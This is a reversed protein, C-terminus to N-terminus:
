FGLTLDQANSLAFPQFGGFHVAQTSCTFGVFISRKPIALDYTALPGPRPTLLMLEGYPDTFDVLIVQGGGWTLSLPATFGVLWALNHGTTGGLDITATYTGGVVPLTVADLSAPNTGANRFATAALPYCSDYHYGMDAIGSDQHCDTRTTGVITETAPDGTDVCPNSVGAQPPDQRLHFNVGVHDLFLPNANIMGAGWHLTGGPEVFVAASGGELDSYSMDLTSPLATTGLWVEYGTGAPNDWLICNKISVVAGDLHLAGGNSGANNKAITNQYLTVQGTCAVGGGLGAHNQVILNNSLEVVGTSALLIGGGFGSAYNVVLENEFIGPSAGQWWIGAGDQAGNSLISNQYITVTDANGWIGGGDEDAENWTFTNDVITPSSDVLCMGGGDHTTTNAYFTNGRVLPSSTDCFLGGGLGRTGDAHNNKIENGTITPSSGLCFIGGGCTDSGHLTGVGGTITFGALVSGAGEGGAFTVVSGAGSGHITTTAPGQESRVTVAKGLFDITEAYTGPSVLIEDGPGAAVIAAQITPYDAPVGITGASGVSPLAVFLVLAIAHRM